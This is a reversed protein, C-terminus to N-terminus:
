VKILRNKSYILFEQWWGYKIVSKITFAHFRLYQSISLVNNKKLHKVNFLQYSFVRHVTLNQLAKSEIGFELTYIM